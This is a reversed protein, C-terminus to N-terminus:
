PRSSKPKTSQYLPTKNKWACRGNTSQKKWFAYKQPDSNKLRLMAKEKEKRAAYGKVSKCIRCVRQKVAGHRMTNEPTYEHGHVCHTKNASPNRGKAERDAANDAHTGLFLHAPNVCPPNDCRHLVLIGSPCHGNHIAFSIRSALKPRRGLSMIGYGKLKMARWGWCKDPTSIEVKAWFREIERDSLDKIELPENSM